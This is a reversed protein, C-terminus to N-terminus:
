AENATHGHAATRLRAVQEYLSVIQRYMHDLEAGFGVGQQQIDALTQGPDKAEDATHRHATTTLSAVQEDLSVIQKRLHDIRDGVSIDLPIPSPAEFQKGEITEEPENATHRHATTRLSAVQEHLSVVQRYLHDMKAGPSIGRPIPSPQEFHSGEINSM